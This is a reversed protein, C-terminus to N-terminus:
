GLLWGLVDRRKAGSPSPSSSTRSLATTDISMRQLWRLPLFTGRHEHPACVYGAYRGSLGRPSALAMGGHLERARKRRPATRIRSHTRDALIPRIRPSDLQGVTPVDVAIRSREVLRPIIRM